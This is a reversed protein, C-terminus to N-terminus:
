RALNMNRPTVDFRIQQDAVMRDGTAKGTNVFLANQGDTLSGRLTSDGTQLRITVRIKRIRFLDADFRNTNAGDPCWPGDTLQAQTLKVLGTGAAGLNLLRPQQIGGNVQITCNEGAPWAGKVQGLVPPRPGYTVDQSKLGNGDVMAPPQPDGYYEFNLGVVEDLVPVTTQYGDYHKLQRNVADYFYVHDQYQVVKAGAGYAKSLDGQQNHQLHAAQDQVETITMTDFAGTDDYILVSEGVTFGCLNAGNPCGSEANVKLEASATPMAQAISTQSSTSPVYFITIRDTFFTGPGDDLAPDNGQRSPQIPAFFGALSGSQSGSYAGAGAMMLDRTLTDVGIRLRQQMDVVEPQAKFMAGSPNLVTFIGGTVVLMIATAVLVEILSFGAESRTHNTTM